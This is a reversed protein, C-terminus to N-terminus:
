VGVEKIHMVEYKELSMLEEIGQGTEDDYWECWELEGTDPNEEYVELGGTNMDIHKNLLDSYALGHMVGVAVDISPVTYYQNGHGLFRNWWVRLQGKRYGGM